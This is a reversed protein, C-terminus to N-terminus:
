SLRIETKGDTPPTQPESGAEEEEEKVAPMTSIYQLLATVNLPTNEIMYKMVHANPSSLQVYTNM